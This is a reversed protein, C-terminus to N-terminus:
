KDIFPYYDEKTLCSKNWFFRVKYIKLKVFITKKSKIIFSDHNSGIAVVM